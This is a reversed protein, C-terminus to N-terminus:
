HGYDTLTMKYELGSVIIGNRKGLNDREKFIMGVGNAYIEKGYIKEVYNNDDRQLVTITSDFAFGNLNMSSNFDEYLYMEEGITNADNGDWTVESTIPFSLKHYKINEETRYAATPTLSQSWVSVFTWDETTTNRKYVLLVQADKGSADTYTSDIVFKEQFHFSYVSDDNNNDNESHYISDVDYIVWIGQRIPFYDFHLSPADVKEKKCSYLFAIGPLAVAFFFILAKNPKPNM